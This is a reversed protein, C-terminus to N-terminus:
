AFHMTLERALRKLAYDRGEEPCFIRFRPM